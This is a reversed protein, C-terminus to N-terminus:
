HTASLRFRRHFGQSMRRATQAPHGTKSSLEDIKTSAIVLRAIDRVCKDPFDAYIRQACGCESLWEIPDGALPISPRVEPGNTSNHSAAGSWVRRARREPASGLFNTWDFHSDTPLTLGPHDGPRAVSRSTVFRHFASWLPHIM